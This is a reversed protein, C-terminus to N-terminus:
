ATTYAAPPLLPALVVTEFGGPLAGLMADETRRLTAFVVAAPAVFRYSRYRRLVDAPTLREARLRFVELLLTTLDSGPLEDALVDLLEAGGVEGVVRRLAQGSGGPGTVAGHDDM